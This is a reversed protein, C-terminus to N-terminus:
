SLFAITGDTNLARNNDYSIYSVNVFIFQLNRLNTHSSQKGQTLVSYLTYFVSIIVNLYISDISFM